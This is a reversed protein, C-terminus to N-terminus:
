AEAVRIGSKLAGWHDRRLVCTCVYFSLSGPTEVGKDIIEILLM